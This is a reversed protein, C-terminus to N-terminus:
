VCRSTYLLCGMVAPRHYIGTLAPRVVVPRTVMEYVDPKRVKEYCEVAHGRGCGFAFSPTAPTLAVLALFLLKHSRM